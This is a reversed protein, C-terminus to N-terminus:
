RVVIEDIFLWSPNGAAPHWKPLSGPSEARFRLYRARVNNKETKLTRAKVTLGKSDKEIPMEIDRGAVVRFTKGDDSVSWEIRRPQVMGDPVSQMFRVSVSHLPLSKGLDITAEVDAGRFGMWELHLDHPEGMLGDTLGAVGGGPHRPDPEINVKM